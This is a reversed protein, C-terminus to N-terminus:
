PDSQIFIDLYTTYEGKPQEDDVRMGLWLYFTDEFAGPGGVTLPSTPTYMTDLDNFDYWFGASTGNAPLGQTPIAQTDVEYGGWTPITYNGDSFWGGTNFYTFIGGNSKVHVSLSDVVYDGPIDVHINYDLYQISLYVWQSVHLNWTIRPLQTWTPTGPLVSYQVGGYTYSPDLIGDNASSTWTNLGTADAAVPDTVESWAASSADWSYIPVPTDAFAFAGVMLLAVISLIAVKRM